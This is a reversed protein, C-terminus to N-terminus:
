ADFFVTEDKGQLVINWELTNPAGPAPKAILVSRREAPVLQLVADEANAPEDPFYIRTFLHRLLGRAFVTVVIHPAQLSGRPGPVRGPKVTTLSFKGEADSAVRGFGRFGAAASKAQPDEPHPYHGNPDAQWFEILSDSVGKGNGDLVRGGIVVREGAVGPGALNDRKLQTMGLHFYPGVTQSPTARLSM